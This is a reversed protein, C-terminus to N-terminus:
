YFADQWLLESYHTIREVASSLKFIGSYLYSTVKELPFLFSMLNDGCICM